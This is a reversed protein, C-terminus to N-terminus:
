SSATRRWCKPSAGAVTDTADANVIEVRVISPPQPKFLVGFFTAMILPIFVWFIAERSRLTLRVGNLAIYVAIM